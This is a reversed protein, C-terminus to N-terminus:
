CSYSFMFCNIQMFYRELTVAAPTVHSVVPLGTVPSCFEFSSDGTEREGDCKCYGQSKNYEMLQSLEKEMQKIQSKAQKEAARLKARRTKLAAIIMMYGSSDIDEDMM